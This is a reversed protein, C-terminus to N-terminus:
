KETQKTNKYRRLDKKKEYFISENKSKLKRNLRVMPLHTYHKDKQVTPFLENIGQNGVM